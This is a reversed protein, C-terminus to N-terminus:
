VLINRELIDIFHIHHRFSGNIEGYIKEMGKQIASMRITQKIDPSCELNDWMFRIQERTLNNNLGM